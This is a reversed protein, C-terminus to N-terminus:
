EEKGVKKGCHKCKIEGGLKHRKIAHLIMWVAAFIDAWFARDPVQEYHSLQDSARALPSDPPIDVRKILKNNFTGSSM